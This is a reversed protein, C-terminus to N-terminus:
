PLLLQKRLAETEGEIGLNAEQSVITLVYLYSAAAMASIPAADEVSGDDFIVGAPTFVMGLGGAGSHTWGSMMNYAIHYAEKAEPTGVRASMEALSPLLNGNKRVPVGKELALARAKSIADDLVDLAGDPMRAALGAAFRTGAKSPADRILSRMHREHEAKWLFPHVERNLLIWPLV